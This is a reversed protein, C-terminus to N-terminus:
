REATADLEKELQKQAKDVPNVDADPQLDPVYNPRPKVSIESAPDFISAQDQRAKNLKEQWSKYYKPTMIPDGKQRYILYLRRDVEAATPQLSGAEEFDKIAADWNRPDSQKALLDGRYYYARVMKPDERIAASFDLVAEKSLQQNVYALARTLYARALHRNAAVAATADDICKQLLENARQLCAAIETRDTSRKAVLDRAKEYERGAMAQYVLARGSYAKACKRDLSVAQTFDNIAQPFDQKLAYVMGRGSYVEPRASDISAAVNCDNLAGAFDETTSRTVARRLLASVLYPDTALAQEYEALAKKTARLAQYISGRLEHALGLITKAHITEEPDGRFKKALDIATRCDAVAQRCEAVEALTRMESAKELRARARIVYAEMLIEDLHIASDCDIVAKDFESLECEGRARLVYAAALKSDAGLAEDCDAVAGEYDGLDLRIAARRRRAGVHRPDLKVARDFDNLAKELIKTAEEPKRASLSQYLAGRATLVDVRELGSDLAKTLDELAKETDGLDREALGRTFYASGLKGDIKLAANCDNLAQQFKKMQLFVAARRERARLSEPHEDLASDFDALAQDLDGRALAASGSEILDAASKGGSTPSTSTGGCGALGLLLIPLPWNRSFKM